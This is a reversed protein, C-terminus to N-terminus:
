RFGARTAAVRAMTARIREVMCSVALQESTATAVQVRCGPARMGDTVEYHPAATWSDDTCQLAFQRISLEDQDVANPPSANLM